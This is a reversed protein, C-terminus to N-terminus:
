CYQCLLNQFYAYFEILATRYSVCGQNHSHVSDGLASFAVLLVYRIGAQSSREHMKLIHMKM